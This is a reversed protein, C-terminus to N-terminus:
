KSVTKKFDIYPKFFDYIEKPEFETGNRLHDLEKIAHWDEFKELLTVSQLHLRLEDVIEFCKEICAMQATQEFEFTGDVNYYKGNHIVFPAYLDNDKNYNLYICLNYNLFANKFEQYISLVEDDSKLFDFDLTKFIQPYTQKMRNKLNSVPCEEDKDNGKREINFDSIIDIKLESKRNELYNRYDRDVDSQSDDKLLFSRIEKLLVPENPQNECEKELQIKVKNLLEFAEKQTKITKMKM